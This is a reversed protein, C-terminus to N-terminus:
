RAFNITLVVTWFNIWIFFSIFLSTDCWIQQSLFHSGMCWVAMPLLSGVCLVSIMLNAALLLYRAINLSRRGRQQVTSFNTNSGHDTALGGCIIIVLYLIEAKPNNDDDCSSISTSLLHLHSTAKVDSSDIIKKFLLLLISLRDLFDFPFPALFSSCYNQLSTQLEDVLSALQQAIIEDMPATTVYEDFDDSIVHM